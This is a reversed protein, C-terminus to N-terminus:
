KKGPKAPKKKAKTQELDAMIQELKAVMGPPIGEIVKLRNTIGALQRNIENIVQCHYDPQSAAYTSSVCLREGTVTDRIHVNAIEVKFKSADVIVPENAEVVVEWSYSNLLYRAQQLRRENAAKADDWTFEKHLPSDESHGEEILEEHTVHGEPYREDANRRQLEAIREGITQIDGRCVFGVRVRYVITPMTM